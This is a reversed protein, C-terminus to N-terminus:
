EDLRRGRRMAETARDDPMGPGDDEIALHLGSTDHRAQLRVRSRAWKCANEMLNGLIEELDERPGRFFLDAAVDVEIALGREVYIKRLAAAASEAIPRIPNKVGLSRGSGAMAAARGLHHEILRRMVQVQDMMVARNATGQLEAGLVALSTKLAHALDGVHARAREILEADKDLVGNMAEVLPAVEPPYRGALRTADGHRVAELDAAMVRLPRLGYRVQIVIALAMGLGLLGLAAVLLLDFRRVGSGVERLDAAVLLHVPNANGPYHLDREVVLLPEGNPGDARRTEMDSGGATTAITSDWLSRSRLQRGDPGTIQWYWGSFIRDFRADGMPRVMTVTGGPAVETSAIMTKLIADLRYSFEQEVAARFAYALIGGGAALLLLLWVLAALILRRSLSAPPRGSAVTTM